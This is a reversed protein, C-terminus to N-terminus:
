CCVWRRLQCPWWSRWLVIFSLRNSLATPRWPEKGSRWQPDAFRLECTELALYVLAGLLLAGIVGLDLWSIGLITVSFFSSSEVGTPSWWAEAGWRLLGLFHFLVSTSCPM